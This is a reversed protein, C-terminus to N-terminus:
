RSRTPTTCWVTWSPTPSHRTEWLKMGGEVPIQASVLTSKRDYRDELIEFLARRQEDVLPMSAWDDLILLDFKALNSLFKLYKGEVRSHGIGRLAKSVEFVVGM